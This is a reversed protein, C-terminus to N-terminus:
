TAYEEEHQALLYTKVVYDDRLPTLVDLLDALIDEGRAYDAQANSEQTEGTALDTAATEKEETAEEKAENAASITSDEDTAATGVATDNTTAIEKWALAKAEL